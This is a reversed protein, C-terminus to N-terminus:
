CSLALEADTFTQVLELSNEECPIKQGDKVLGQIHCKIAEKLNKQNRSQKEGLIAGKFFRCM